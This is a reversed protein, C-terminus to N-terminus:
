SNITAGSKWISSTDFNSKLAFHMERLACTKGDSGGSITSRSSDRISCLKVTGLLMENMDWYFCSMFLRDETGKM